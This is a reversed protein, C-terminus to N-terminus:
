RHQSHFIEALTPHEVINSCLCRQHIELEATYRYVSLNNPQWFKNVDYMLPEIAKDKRKVQHTKGYQEDVCKSIAAFNMPETSSFLNDEYSSWLRKAKIMNRPTKITKLKEVSASTIKTAMQRPMLLWCGTIYAVM